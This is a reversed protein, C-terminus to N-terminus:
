TEIIISYLVRDYYYLPYNEVFFGHSKGRIVFIFAISFFFFCIEILRDIFLDTVKKGAQNVM